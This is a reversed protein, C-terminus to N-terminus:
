VGSANSDQRGDARSDSNQANNQDQSVQQAIEQMASELSPGPQITPVNVGQKLFRREIHLGMAFARKLAEEMGKSLGLDLYFVITEADVWRDFGMQIGISRHDPNHDDLFQTYFLHSAFPNEGRQCCDFCADRAYKINRLRTQEDASGFPSEVIVKKISSM